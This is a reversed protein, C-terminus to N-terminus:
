SREEWVLKGALWVAVARGFLTWNAFPTNHSKSEFRNPHVIWPTEVDFIAVDAPCGPALSPPPLGLVSAPGTTWRRLWELAPMKGPRVLLTWTVGVATELGVVGFPARLFGRAKKDASHPAHDTAFCTISGDVIARELAARDSRSRLPPNMKFNANAPDIDEDCLALHHPTLEATVPAGRARASRILDAAAASSVHQIHVRCGTSEALEIDRQVIRTEAEVPIGPLGFRRSAEGEHMVGGQREIRNDQAHDLIPKGLDRAIDMARQMLADDQVTCGDDTFAVAGAGALAALNALAKGQRGLTIAGSPLVRVRGAERGRLAVYRITEPTDHPPRTNPMAVVTTFGGRAAARSATEITENEEGGPERMHVHLDILGPTVFRGAADIVRASPPAHRVILGGSICLDRVADEGTAPDLVRGNTILFADSM